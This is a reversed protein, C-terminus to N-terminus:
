SLFKKAVFKVSVEMGLEWEPDTVLERSAHQKLKVKTM